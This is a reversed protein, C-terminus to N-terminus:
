RKTIGAARGRFSAEHMGHQLVGTAPDFISFSPGEAMMLCVSHGQGTLVAMTPNTPEAPRMLDAIDDPTALCRAPTNQFASGKDTSEQGLAPGGDACAMVIYERKEMGLGDLDIGSLSLVDHVSLRCHGGGGSGDLRVRELNRHGRQAVAMARDVQERSPVTSVMGSLFAIGVCMSATTCM